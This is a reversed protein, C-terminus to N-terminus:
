ANFSRIEIAPAGILVGVTQSLDKTSKTPNSTRVATTIVLVIKQLIDRQRAGDRWDFASVDLCNEGV